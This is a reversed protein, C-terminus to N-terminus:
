HMNTCTHSHALSAQAEVPLVAALVCKWLLRRMGQIDLQSTKIQLKNNAYKITKFLVADVLAGYVKRQAAPLKQADTMLIFEGNNLRPMLVRSLNRMEKAAQLAVFPLVTLLLSRLYAICRRWARKPKAPPQM